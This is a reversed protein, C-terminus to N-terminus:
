SLSKQPPRLIYVKEGKTLHRLKRTSSLYTNFKVKHISINVQDTLVAITSYFNQCRNVYSKLM